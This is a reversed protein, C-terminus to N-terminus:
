STKHIGVRLSAFPVLWRIKPIGTFFHYFVQTVRCMSFFHKLVNNAVQFTEGCKTKHRWLYYSGIYHAGRTSVSGLHRKRTSVLKQESFDERSSFLSSTNSEVIFISLFSHLFHLRPKLSTETSLCRLNTSVKRM